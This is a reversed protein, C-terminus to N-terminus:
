PRLPGAVFDDISMTVPVQTSTGSLYFWLGVSGPAQLSATTDSAQLLWTAPEVTGDKWVKARLQTTGVGDAQLRVRLVDGVSYTLGPVTALNQIVTEVGGITRVLQASVTNNSLVRVKVRYDNSSNIRRGQVAFYIGGGTSARDFSVKVNVETSSQAVSNLTATRSVGAGAVLRGAGGNVSFNSTTGGLTWTGGLDAAGFGSALTRFFSDSAYNVV